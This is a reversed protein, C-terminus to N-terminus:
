EFARDGWKQIKNFESGPGKPYNGRGYKADLLREAFKKGPEGVLPRQGKAWSPVDRAAEKGSLGPKPRKLGGGGSSPGIGSSCMAIGAITGGGAGILAGGGSFGPVTAAGLPGGAFGLSGVKAGIITGAFLGSGTYNAVCGTDLTRVHQLVTEAAQRKAALTAEAIQKMVLLWTVPAWHLPEPDAEATVTISTGPVPIPDHGTSDTYFGPNNLGYSYLNWSQPDGADAYTV